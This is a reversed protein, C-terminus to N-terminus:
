LSDNPVRTEDFFLASMNRAFQAALEKAKSRLVPQGMSGLKGTIAADVSYIIRTEDGMETLTTETTASLRGAVGFPTGEIRTAIRSPREMALVEVAVQFKFKLYAIKTEFIAEYHTPDIEKLDKIGEVLSVFQDPNKLRDFVAERNGPITIEGSILM